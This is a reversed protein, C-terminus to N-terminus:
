NRYNRESQNLTGNVFAIAREEGNPYIHSDVAGVGYSSEDTDLKLPLEDRFRTM